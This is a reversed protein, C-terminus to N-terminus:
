IFKMLNLTLYLLDNKKGQYQRKMNKGSIKVEKHRMIMMLKKLCDVKEAKRRTKM